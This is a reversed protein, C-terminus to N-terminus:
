QRHVADFPLVNASRESRLIFRRWAAASTPQSPSARTPKVMLAYKGRTGEAEDLPILFGVIRTYCKQRFFAVKSKLLRWEGDALSFHRWYGDRGAQAHRNVSKGLILLEGRVPQASKM